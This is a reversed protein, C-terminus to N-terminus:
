KKNRGRGRGSGKAEGVDGTEAEDEGAKASSKGDVKSKLDRLARRYQCIEAMAEESGGFVPRALPDELPLILWSNTWDGNELACQHISQMGLALLAASHDPRGNISHELAEAMIYHCRWLGIMRMFQARIRQSHDSVKWFQTSHTIGLERQIRDLHNQVIKKPDKNFRKRSRHIGRFNGKLMASPDQEKDDDSSESDTRGRRALKELVELMKMQVLLNADVPAGSAASAAAAAKLARKGATGPEPLQAGGGFLGTMGGHAQLGELADEPTLRYGSRKSAMPEPSMRYGALTSSTATGQKAAKSALPREEPDSEEGSESSEPVEVDKASGPDAKWLRQASQLGPLVSPRTAASKPRRSSVPAGGDSTVPADENLMAKLASKTGPLSVFRRVLWDKDMIMGEMPALHETRVVEFTVEVELMGQASMVKAKEQGGTDESPPVAVTCKEGECILVLAEKLVLVGDLKTLYCVVDGSAVM